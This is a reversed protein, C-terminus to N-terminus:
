RTSADCDPEDSSGALNRSPLHQELLRLMEVIDRDHRTTSGAGARRSGPTSMRRLPPIGPRRRAKAPEGKRCSESKGVTPWQDRCRRGLQLHFLDWAM